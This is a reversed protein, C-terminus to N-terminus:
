SVCNCRRLRLHPGARLITGQVQNEVPPRFEAWSPRMTTASTRSPPMTGTSPSILAPSWIRMTSLVRRTFLVSVAALTAMWFAM